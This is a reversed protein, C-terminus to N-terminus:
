KRKLLYNCENGKVSECYIKDDVKNVMKIFFVDMVFWIILFGMGYKFDDFYVVDQRFYVWFM